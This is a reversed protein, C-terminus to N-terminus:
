FDTAFVEGAWHDFVIRTPDATARARWPVDAFGQVTPSVVTAEGTALLSSLLTERRVPLPGSTDIRTEVLIARTGDPTVALLESDVTASLDRDPRSIRRPTDGTVPVAFVEWQENAAQDAVYVVTATAAALRLLSVDGGVALPANLRTAPGGTIAVSWLEVQEDVAQDAAYIVRSSDASIAPLRWGNRSVSGGAPMLGSLKVQAGGALPVSYLEPVEDVQQDALYVVRQSNAAVAYWLVSGGAVLPGDLRVPSGGTIPVAYLHAQLDPGWATFVVRQPSSTLEVTGVTIPGLGSSLLTSGGGGIPVSRLEKQQFDVYVVRNSSTSVWFDAGEDPFLAGSPVLVTPTGGAIPVSFLRRGIGAGEHASFVVRSSDPTIVFRDVWCCALPDNLRVWSGEPGALAISYLEDVGEQEQPALYVVRQNNPAITAWRVDSGSPLLGSLRVPPGGGIPVSWLEFADDVVADQVYVVRSANPSVWVGGLTSFPLGQSLQVTEASALAVSVAALGASCIASRLWRSASQVNAPTTRM